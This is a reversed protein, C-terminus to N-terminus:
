AFLFIPNIGFSALIIEVCPDVLVSVISTNIVSYMYLEYQYNLLTNRVYIIM